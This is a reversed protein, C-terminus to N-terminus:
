FWKLIRCDLESGVSSELIGSKTRLSCDIVISPISVDAGFASSSKDTIFDNFPPFDALSRGVSYM